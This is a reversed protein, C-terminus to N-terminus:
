EQESKDTLYLTDLRGEKELYTLLQKDSLVKALAKDAHLYINQIELQLSNFDVAYKEEAEQLQQYREQLILEVKESQAQDLKLDHKMEQSVMEPGSMSFALILKDLNDDVVHLEQAQSAIGAISFLFALLTKKM